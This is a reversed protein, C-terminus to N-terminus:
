KAKHQKKYEIRATNYAAHFMRMLQDWMQLFQSTLSEEFFLRFGLENARAEEDADIRERFTGAEELVQADFRSIHNDLCIVVPFKIPPKGREM